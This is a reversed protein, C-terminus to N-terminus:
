ETGKTTAEHIGKAIQHAAQNVVEQVAAVHRPILEVEPYKNEISVQVTMQFVTSGACVTKEMRITSCSM